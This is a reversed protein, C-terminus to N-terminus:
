PEYCSKIFKDYFAIMSQELERSEFAKGGHEGGSVVRLEASIGNERLAEFLLRSQDLPVVTDRDGHVILFPADDRSIYKVPNAMWADERNKLISRGFLQYISTKKEDGSPDMQMRRQALRYLDVPGYWDVVAQVNSSYERHEGVKEFDSVNASTGLLAALHGGASAGWVGICREGYGYKEANARLWRIAAKCDELQAPFASEPAMRYDISAIAYGSELLFRCPPDKRSGSKWGGGHIYVILPTIGKKKYIHLDLRQQETEKPVYRLDRVIILNETNKIPGNVSYLYRWCEYVILGAVIGAVAVFAAVFLGRHKKNGKHRNGRIQNKISHSGM